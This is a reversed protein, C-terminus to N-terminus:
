KHKYRHLVNCELQTVKFTEWRENLVTLALEVAAVNKNSAAGIENKNSGGRHVPVFYPLKVNYQFINNPSTTGLFDKFAKPLPITPDALVFTPINPYL